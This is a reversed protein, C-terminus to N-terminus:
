ACLEMAKERLAPTWRWDDPNIPLADLLDAGTEFRRLCRMLSLADRRMDAVLRDADEIPYRAHKKDTVYLLEATACERAKMYGSLQRAHDHRPTSPCRTTTKLELLSGDEFVFDVYGVIPVPVDDLWLETRLQTAVLPHLVNGELANAAAKLMPAALRRQTDTEDDALGQANAEFTESAVLQANEMSAGRLWAHLGSEVASGRWMAASGTDDRVKLAYRLAWIAPSSNWTNLSSASLHDIGFRAFPNDSM